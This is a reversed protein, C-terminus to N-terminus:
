LYAKAVKELNKALALAEEKTLGSIGPTSIWKKNPDCNPNTNKSKVRISLKKDGGDYRFAVVNFFRKDNGSSEKGFEELKSKDFEAM